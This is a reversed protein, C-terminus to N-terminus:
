PAAALVGAVDSVWAGLDLPSPSLGQEVLFADTAAIRGLSTPSIDPTFDFDPYLAAEQEVTAQDADALQQLAEDRNDLAWEVAAARAQLYAPFFAPHADIFANTAAFVSIGAAEPM